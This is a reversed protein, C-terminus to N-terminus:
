TDIAVFYPTKERFETVYRFGAGLLIEGAMDFRYGLDRARHADSGVTVMEGGLERYRALIGPHPNPFGLGQRLGATNLELAIGRSILEGLILDICDRYEEWRYAREKEYGYRVVYDLHGLTQFGRCARLCDLVWSFYMGYMERDDADIRDRYYPDMGNMTHVSGIIFDYPQSEMYGTARAAAAGDPFLGMEVGLVVDCRGKWAEKVERLKSLYGETDLQFEGTPYDMDYHDTICIRQMGQRVATEVHNEMREDSDSSFCTHLHWDNLPM